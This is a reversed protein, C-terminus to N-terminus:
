FQNIGPVLDKLPAIRLNIDTQITHCRERGKTLGIIIGDPNTCRTEYSHDHGTYGGKNHICNTQDCQIIINM